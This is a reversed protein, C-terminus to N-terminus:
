RVPVIRVIHAAGKGSPLRMHRIAHLKAGGKQALSSADLVSLHGRRTVVEAGGRALHIVMTTYDRTTM